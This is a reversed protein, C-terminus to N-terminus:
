MMDSCEFANKVIIKYGCVAAGSFQSTAKMEMKWGLNLIKDKLKKDLGEPNMFKDSEMPKGSGDDCETYDFYLFVVKQLTNKDKREIQHILRQLVEDDFRYENMFHLEKVNPWISTIEEFSITWKRENTETDVEDTKEMFFRRLIDSIRDFKVCQRENPCERIQDWRRVWVDELHILETQSKPSFFTNSGVRQHKSKRENKHRRRHTGELMADWGEYEIKGYKEIYKEKNVCCESRLWALALALRIELHQEMSFIQERFLQLVFFFERTLSAPASDLNTAVTIIKLIRIDTNFSFFFFSSSFM